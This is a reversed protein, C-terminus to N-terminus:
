GPQASGLRPAAAAVAPTTDLLGTGESADFPLNPLTSIDLAQSDATPKAYLVPQTPSGLLVSLQPFKRELLHVVVYYIYALATTIAGTVVRTATTTDVGFAHELWPAIPLALLWGVLLPVFTRVFSPFLPTLM